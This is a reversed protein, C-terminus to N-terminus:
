LKSRLWFRGYFNGFQVTEIEGGKFDSHVWLTRFSVGIIRAAEVGSVLDSLAVPQDPYEPLAGGAARIEQRLYFATRGIRESWTLDGYKLWRYLQRNSNFGLAETALM